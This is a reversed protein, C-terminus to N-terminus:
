FLPCKRYQRKKNKEYEKRHKRWCTKCMRHNKGKIEFLYGCVECNGINDGIYKMYELVCDEFKNITLVVESCDDFENVFNIKYKCKKTMTILGLDILQKMITNREKKKLYIKASEFFSNIKGDAYYGERKEPIPLKKKKKEDENITTIYAIKDDMYHEYSQRNLKGVILLVFAVKELKLDNLEKITQIENETVEVPSMTFLTNKQSYSCARKILNIFKVENFDTIYRKCFEILEVKIEEVNKNQSSYYKALIKLEFDYQKLEFGKELMNEAHKLEDLIRM